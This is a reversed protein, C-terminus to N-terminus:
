LVRKIKEERCPQLSCQIQLALALLGFNDINTYGQLTKADLCQFDFQVLKKFGFIQINVEDKWNIVLDSNIHKPMWANSILNYWSKLASLKQILRM